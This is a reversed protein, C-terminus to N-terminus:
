EQGLADLDVLSKTGRLHAKALPTALSVLETAVSISQYSVAIGSVLWKVLGEWTMSQPSREGTLYWKGNAKIGAYAYWTDEQGPFRRSFRIVTGDLAEGLGSSALAKRIVLKEGVVRKLEEELVAKDLMNDAETMIRSELHDM